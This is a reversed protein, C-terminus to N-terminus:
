KHSNLSYTSVYIFSIGFYAVALYINGFVLTILCLSSRLIVVLLIYIFNLIFGLQFYGGLLGDNSVLRCPGTKLFKAMGFGASLLSILLTVVFLPDKVYKWLIIFSGSM